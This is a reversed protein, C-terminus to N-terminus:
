ACNDCTVTAQNSSSGAGTTMTTQVVTGHLFGLANNSLWWLLFVVVALIGWGTKEQNSV